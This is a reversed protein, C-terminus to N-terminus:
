MEFPYQYTSGPSGMDGAMGGFTYCPLLQLVQLEKCPAPFQLPTGFWLDGWGRSDFYWPAGFLGQMNVEMRKEWKLMELLDGCQENPLKPVCDANTGSADTASLGAATRTENVIGAAGAMDGTRYMAEAKLLRMEDYNIEAYTFDNWQYYELFRYNHYYSWRWTGRDPRAWVNSINSPAEFYTGPNARQDDVTSGQPFRQDPTVILIPTGDPHNPNKEEISLDLWKQFNGSQDAMGYVWYSMESWGPYTGYDVVAMYWDNNADMNQYFTSQIGADIDAVVAGWNVAAREAPTRAVAARLRAKQSHVIRALESATLRAQMWGEPVTFGAGSSLSIAEDLYALAAAMVEEYGVPNQAENLDTTEDVVFGKDYVLALTGHAMGLIFRGFARARTVDESGLAEAIEPNDLARLGDSVAAIARYSRFWPRTFNDYYPNAADNNIAQRPLRGYLEMGANAWPANHQFSANSLFLGPGGYAYVGNFWTNYGGVILSEVDGATALARSADADNPNVVDLDACAAAGLLLMSGVVLYKFIDRM